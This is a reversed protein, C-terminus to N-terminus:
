PYYWWWRCCHRRCRCSWSSVKVLLMTSSTLWTKARLRPPTKSVSRKTSMEKEPTPLQQKQNRHPITNINVYSRKLGAADAPEVWVETKMGPIDGVGTDLYDGLVHCRIGEEQLAQQWIHAQFPNAAAALDHQDESNMANRVGILNLLKRNLKNTVDHGRQDM